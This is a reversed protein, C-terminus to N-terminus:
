VAERKEHKKEKAIKEAIGKLMVEEEKTLEHRMYQVSFTEPRINLREAIQYLKVGKEKCYMKFAKNM